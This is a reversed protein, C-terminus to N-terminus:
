SQIMCNIAYCWLVMKVYIQDYAVTDMGSNENPWQFYELLEEVMEKLEDCANQVAEFIAEMERSLM